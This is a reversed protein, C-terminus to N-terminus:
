CCPMFSATIIEELRALNDSLQQIAAEAGQTSLTTELDAFFTSDM